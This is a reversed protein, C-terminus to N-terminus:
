LVLQGFESSVLDQLSSVARFSHRLLERDRPSLRRPAIFTDVTRGERAKELQSSLAHKLLSRYAADFYEGDGPNIHGERVLAAIRGLTRTERIGHLLALIRVGEVVFILGSKKIDMEGRHEGTRETIFRGMFGLPVTHGSEEDLLVRLVEHHNALLGYAYDNLIHFLNEDGAVPRSDFFVTVYRVLHPIQREFWYGLQMKWETLSKRWIPNASMIYGPCWKFGIEELWESFTRTLDIFYQAYQVGGDASDAIIMGHDQDSTLLNEGRGHSGSVFLCCESPPEGLKSVALQFAKRHIDQNILSMMTVIDSARIRRSLKREALEPVRAKIDKLDKIDKAGAISDILMMPEPHKLKILQRLTVIGVVAEEEVLPLHKIGRSSLLSLARYVTDGPSLTVAGTTMVSAVTARMKDECHESALMRLVDRETMIGVPENSEGTAVVCSVGRRSMERVVDKVKESPSCTYVSSVMVGRLDEGYPFYEVGRLVEQKSRFDKLVKPDTLQRKLNKKMARYHILLRLGTLPVGGRM